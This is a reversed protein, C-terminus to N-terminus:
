VLVVVTMINVVIINESFKSMANQREIMWNTPLGINDFEGMKVESARTDILRIMDYYKDLLTM